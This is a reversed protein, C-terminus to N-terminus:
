GIFHCSRLPKRGLMVNLLLVILDQMRLTIVIVRRWLQVVSNTELPPGRSLLISRFFETLKMVASPVIAEGDSVALIVVLVVSEVLLKKSLGDLHFSLVYSEKGFRLVGLHLEFKLISQLRNCVEGWLDGIFQFRSGAKEIIHALRQFFRHFDFLVQLHNLIPLVIVIYSRTLVIM